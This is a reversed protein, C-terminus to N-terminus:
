PRGGGDGGHDLGADMRDLLLERGFVVRTVRGQLEHNLFPTNISKSRMFDESFRTTRRPDFVVLEAREGAALRVPEFGLLRRPEDAYRTVLVDWGLHGHRIFRDFLSVLATDLGTIGFPASVFDLAKEYRTHPAHDTAIVDFVGDILGQLLAENDERTRLPPNMKYHTDFDGVDEDCFMLHHPAVECSVSVGDEKFRRITNMGRATTVHQIHVHTGTYQALRIDRDLCIEESIAPVGPVGLRFSTPGENMAGAGSLEMTECHSATFLGFDRAYEMARRLVRPNEVPSGDDTLFVVGQAKMGAIGALERGAREKTICGSTWVPIRCRSRAIDMVAQVLGGNDIAPTTNPMLVMGTVGGNIAAEGATAITEKDERGPERAHVHVDFLGPLLICGACDIVEIGAPDGAASGAPVAGAAVLDAEAAVIVGDEVLLDLPQPERTGSAAVLGGRYWHRAAPASPNSDTNM